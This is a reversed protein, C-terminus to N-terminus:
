STMCISNLVPQISLLPMAGQYLWWGLWAVTGEPHLQAEERLSRARGPLPIGGKDSYDQAACVPALPKM